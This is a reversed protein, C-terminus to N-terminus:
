LPIFVQKRALNPMSFKDSLVCDMILQAPNYDIAQELGVYSTTLRPNIEIVYIKDDHETDVIVDVGVYGLADPLMKAIKRAITEFRQWYASMGNITIGSLRFHDDDRTIHQENCSLLWAKGNRCLMSFSAAVGAQYPQALYNLYREDQKVWRTLDDISDFLRIGDCGAGDEPKAVWSNINETSLQECKGAVLDEGAYVPLTYIKAERLAEFCLTKSTGILTADFGCGLFLAGKDHSAYCLESLELLVGNTEPAILWVQAVSSLAETFIHNFQGAAVAISHSALPSPPLRADHLTVIEFQNIEALHRLLADRMLTGEKVLSDSLAETGLGGGTIYECVLIKKLAEIIFIGRLNCLKAYPM